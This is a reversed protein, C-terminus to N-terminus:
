DFAMGAFTVTGNPDPWQQYKLIKGSTAEMVNLMTYIPPFGCIKRRDGDAEINASFGDADLHEVRELMRLDEAELLKLFGDTIERGDGFRPGVHALDAGAVCCVTGGSEAVAEKVAATFERVREDEIPRIRAAVMEHFSGCLIPVISIHKQKRYLYSLFVAQFEISHEGRHVFEDQLLDYSVRNRIGTVIEHNCPLTGFPTEFDKHTLVFPANTHAHATGFVLFIDADAREALEKYVWGFCPGGRVFDIHPAIIGALNKKQKEKKPLGPGDAHTFFGQIQEELRDPHSDYSKGALIAHRLTARRFDEEIQMRKRHYNENDLLLSGDLRKVLEQITEKYILEGFIRMCEVQIDVISHRGDFLCLMPYLQQPVAMVEDSLNMPDRLAIMRQGSVAVPFAELQRLKPFNM